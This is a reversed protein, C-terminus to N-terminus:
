EDGRGTVMVLVSNNIIMTTIIIITIITTTRNNKINEHCAASDSIVALNDTATKHDM